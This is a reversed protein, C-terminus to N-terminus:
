GSILVLSSIATHVFRVSALTRTLTLLLRGLATRLLHTIHAYFCNQDFLLFSRKTTLERKANVNM